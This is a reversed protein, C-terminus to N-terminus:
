MWHFKKLPYVREVRILAEGESSHSLHVWSRLCVQSVLPRIAHSLNNKTEKNWNHNQLKNTEQAEWFPLIYYFTYNIM